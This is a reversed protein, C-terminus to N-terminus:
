KESLPAKTLERLILVSLGIAFNIAGQYEGLFAGLMSINQQAFGLAMIVVGFIYTKSQLRQKMIAKSM